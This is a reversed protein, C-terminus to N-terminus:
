KLKNRTAQEAQIDDLVRRLQKLKFDSKEFNDSAVFEIAVDLNTSLFSSWEQMRDSAKTRRLLAYFQRVTEESALFCVLTDIASWKWYEDVATGSKALMISLGDRFSWDVRIRCSGEFVVAWFSTNTVDVDVIQFGKAILYGFDKQILELVDNRTKLQSMLPANREGLRRVSHSLPLPSVPSVRRFSQAKKPLGREGFLPM